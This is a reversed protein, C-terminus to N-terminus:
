QIIYLDIIMEDIKDITQVQNITVNYIPSMQKLNDEKIKALLSMYSDTLKGPNGVHRIYLSNNLVLKEQFSFPDAVQIKRNLPIFIEMDLRQKEDVVEVGYTVTVMPGSKMVQNDSMIKELKELVINVEYEFFEGRISILNELLLSKGQQIM